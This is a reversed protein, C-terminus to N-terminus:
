VRGPSGAVPGQSCFAQWRRDGQAGWGRFSQQADTQLFTGQMVICSRPIALKQWLHRTVTKVLSSSIMEVASLM